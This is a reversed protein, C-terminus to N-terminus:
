IPPNHKTAVMAATAAASAAASATAVLQERLGVVEERLEKTEKSFNEVQVELRTIDHSMKWLLAMLPLILVNLAFNTYLFWDPM